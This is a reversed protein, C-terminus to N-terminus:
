YAGGTRVTASGKGVSPADVEVTAKMSSVVATASAATSSTTAATSSATVSSSAMVSSSSKATPIGNPCSVTRLSVVTAVQANSGFVSTTLAATALNAQVANLTINGSTTNQTNYFSSKPEIQFNVQGNQPYTVTVFADSTNAVTFTGNLVDNDADTVLINIFRSDGQCISFTTDGNYRAANNDYTPIVGYPAAAGTFALTTVHNTLVFFNGTVATYDATNSGTCNNLTTTFLKYELGNVSGTLSAGNTVDSRQTGSAGVDQACLRVNSPLANGSIQVTAASVSPSILASAAIAFISATAFIKTYISM